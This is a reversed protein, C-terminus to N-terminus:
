VSFFILFIFNRKNIYKIRRLTLFIKYVHLCYCFLYLINLLLYYILRLNSQIELKKKLPKQKYMYIYTHIIYLATENIGFYEYYMNVNKYTHLQLKIKKGCLFKFKMLKLREGMYKCSFFFSSFSNMYLIHIFTHIIHLNSTNVRSVHIQM